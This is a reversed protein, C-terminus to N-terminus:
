PTEPLSDTIVLEDGRQEIIFTDSKKWEECLATRKYLEQRGDAVTLVVTMPQPQRGSCEGRFMTKGHPRVELCVDPDSQYEYFCMLSDTNNFFTLDPRPSEGCVSIGFVLLLAAM